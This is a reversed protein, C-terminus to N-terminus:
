ACHVIHIKWPGDVRGTFEPRPVSRLGGLCAEMTACVWQQPLDNTNSCDSSIWGICHKSLMCFVPVTGISVDKWQQKITMIRLWTLTNCHGYNTQSYIFKTDSQENINWKAHCQLMNSTANFFIGNAAICILFQRSGFHTIEDLCVDLWKKLSQM